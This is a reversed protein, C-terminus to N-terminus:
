PVLRLFTPFRPKAWSDGCTVPGHARVKAALLVYARSDRQFSVCLFTLCYPCTFTAAMHSKHKFVRQKPPPKPIFIPTQTM